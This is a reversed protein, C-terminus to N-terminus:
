KLHYGDNVLDKTVAQVVVAPRLAAVVENKPVSVKEKENVLYRASYYIEGPEAGNMSYGRFLAAFLNGKALNDQDSIQAHGALYKEAPDINKWASQEANLTQTCDVEGGSYSDAAGRWALAKKFYEQGALQEFKEKILSKEDESFNDRDNLPTLEDYISKAGPAVTGSYENKVENVRNKVAQLQKHYLESAARFYALAETASQSGSSATQTLTQVNADLTPAVEQTSQAQMSVGDVVQLDANINGARASDAQGQTKSTFAQVSGQTQTIIQAAGEVSEDFPEIADRMTKDASANIADAVSDVRLEAFAGAIQLACELQKKSGNDMGGEKVNTYMQELKADYDGFVSTQIEEAGSPPKYSPGPASSPSVGHSGNSGGGSNGGGSHTSDTTGGDNGTPSEGFYCDCDCHVGPKDKGECASVPVIICKGGAGSRGCYKPKATSDQGTLSNTAKKAMEQLSGAVGGILANILQKPIDYKLYFEWELAKQMRMRAAMQALSEGGMQRVDKTSNLSPKGSKEDDQGPMGGPGGPVNISEGAARELSGMGSGGSFNSAAKDAQGRLSEYAGKNASRQSSAVGGYGPGGVPGVMSRSAAKGSASKASALIQGGGLTGATRTDGGISSIGRLATQMKPIVTPVGASRMAAAAANRAVDRPADRVDSPPASPPAPPQSSPSGIILSAPDRSSLPTIVEGSGDPSGQSLSNIGPEYLSGDLAGKRRDGFGATLDSQSPPASIIHEAVPAAVLISLGMGVFALDKKSLNKIRDKISGAAKAFGQSRGFPSTTKKFSSGSRAMVPGGEDDKKDDNFIGM